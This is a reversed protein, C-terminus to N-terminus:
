NIYYHKVQTRQFVTKGTWLVDKTNDSNLKYVTTMGDSSTDLRTLTGEETAWSYMTGEDVQASPYVNDKEQLEDVSKRGFTKAYSKLTEKAEKESSASGSVSTNEVPHTVMLVIGLSTLIIMTIGFLHSQFSGKVFFKGTRIKVVFLLIFYLATFIGGVVTLTTGLVHM